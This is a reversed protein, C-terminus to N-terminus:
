VFNPEEDPMDLFNPEAAGEKKECFEHSDVVFDTTYVKVGEKNVYSGTQVRASVLVKMGQHLYNEVFDATKGFAICRIFDAKKEEGSKGPRDIALTYEAIKVNGNTRVVPEKCLRGMGIWKNM